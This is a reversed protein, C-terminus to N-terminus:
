QGAGLVKTIAEVTPCPYDVGGGKESRCEACSYAIDSDAWCGCEHVGAKGHCDPCPEGNRVGSNWSFVRHVPRHAEVVAELAAVLVTNSGVLASIQLQYPKLNPDLLGWSDTIRALEVKTAALRENATM